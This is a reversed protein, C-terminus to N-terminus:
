QSWELFEIDTRSRHPIQAELNKLCFWVFNCRGKALAPLAGVEQKCCAQLSWCDRGVLVATTKHSNWGSNSHLNLHWPHASCQLDTWTTGQPASIHQGKAWTHCPVAQGGVSSSVSTKNKPLWPSSIPIHWPSISSSQIETYAQAMPINFM